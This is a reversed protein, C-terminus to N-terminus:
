PPNELRARPRQRPSEIVQTGCAFARRSSTAEATQTRRVGIGVQSKVSRGEGEGRGPTRLNRRGGRRRLMPPWGECERAAPAPVLRATGRDAGHAQRGSDRALGSHAARRASDRGLRAPGSGWQDDGRRSPPGTGAGATAGGRASGRSRSVPEWFGCCSLAPRPSLPDGRPRGQGKAAAEPIAGAPFKAGGLGRGEQGRLEGLPGRPGRM